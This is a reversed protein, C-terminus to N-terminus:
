KNPFDHQYIIISNIELNKNNFIHRINKQVESKIQDECYVEINLMLGIEIGVEVEVKIPLPENYPAREDYKAGIPYNSMHIIHILILLKGIQQM